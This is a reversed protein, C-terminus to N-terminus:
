YRLGNSLNPTGFYEESTVVELHSVSVQSKKGDANGKDSDPVTALSGEDVYADYKQDDGNQTPAARQSSM